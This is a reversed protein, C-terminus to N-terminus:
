EDKGVHPQEVRLRDAEEEVGEDLDYYLDPDWKGEDKIQAIFVSQIGNIVTMIEAGETLFKDELDLRGELKAKRGCDHLRTWESYLLIMRRAEEKFGPHELIAKDIAHIDLECTTGSAKCLQRLMMYNYHIYGSLGSIEHFLSLTIVEPQGSQRKRQSQISGFFLVCVSEFDLSYGLSYRARQAYLAYVHPM